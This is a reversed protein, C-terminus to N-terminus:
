KNEKKIEKKTENSKELLSVKGALENIKKNLEDLKKVVLRPTINM